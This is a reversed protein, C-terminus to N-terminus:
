KRHVERWAEQAIEKQERVFAKCVSLFGTDNNGEVAALVVGSILILLLLTGGVEAILESM